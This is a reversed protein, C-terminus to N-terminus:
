KRGNSSRSLFLVVGVIIGGIVVGNLGLIAFLIYTLLSEINQLPNPSMNMM